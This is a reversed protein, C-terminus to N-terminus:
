VSKCACALATVHAVPSSRALSRPHVDNNYEESGDAWYKVWVLPKGLLFRNKLWENINSMRSALASPAQRSACESRRATVGAPATAVDCVEQQAGCRPTVTCARELDRRHAGASPRPATSASAALAAAMAATAPRAARDDLHCVRPDAQQAIGAVGVEAAAQRERQGVVGRRHREHRRRPHRELAVRHQVSLLIVAQAGHSRRDLGAPKVTAHAQELHMCMRPMCAHMCAHMYQMCPLHMPTPPESYPYPPLALQALLQKGAQPLRHEHM